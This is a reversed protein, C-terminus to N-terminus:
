MNRQVKMMVHISYRNKVVEYSYGIRVMESVNYEYFYNYNGFSKLNEDSVCPVYERRKYMAELSVYIFRYLCGFMGAKCATNFFIAISKMM